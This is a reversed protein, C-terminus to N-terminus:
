NGVLNDQLAAAVAATRTSVGLKAFLRAVHGQATRPSIFLAAAIEWDTKGAVLLRLVDLERGSLGSGPPRRQPVEAEPRREVNHALAVAAAIAEDLRWAAGTAWAVQYTQEGLVARAESASEAYWERLAAPLTGGALEQLHAAAGFLHAAELARSYGAAAAALGSLAFTGAWIDSLPALRVLTEAFRHLALPYNGEVLAVTALHHLATVAGFEDGIRQGLALCEEGLSESTRLDGLRLAAAAVCVMAVLLLGDDPAGALLDVADVARARAMTIEGEQFALISQTARLSGLARRDGAALILREGEDIASKAGAFDGQFLALHGLASLARGRLLPTGDPTAALSQELWSRGETMRGRVLWFRQLATALRVGDPSGHGILWTLAARLNDNEAELRALWGVLNTGTVLGFEGQEALDVFWTARRRCTEDREGSSALAELAYKRITELMGFRSEDDVTGGLTLLSKDVLAALDDLASDRPTSRGNERLEGDEASLV